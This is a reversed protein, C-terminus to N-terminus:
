EGYLEPYAKKAYADREARTAKLDLKAEWLALALLAPGLVVLAWCLFLWFM